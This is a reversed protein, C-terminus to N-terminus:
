RDNWSFSNLIVLVVKIFVMLWRGGVVSWRGVLWGVVKGPVYNLVSSWIRFINQMRYNMFVKISIETFVKSSM